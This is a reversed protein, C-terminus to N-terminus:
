SLLWRYSTRLAERGGHELVRGHAVIVRGFDWALIREFSERAATRDRVLLRELLTPGFGTAGLLRFAVRTALPSRPSLNYALDSVLLTRSSPHLFVVENIMPFGRVVCQEIQGTWDPPSEDGLEAHFAVDRRKAPLGPAALLEVGPYAAAVEGVYLHHFRNPAVAFRVRGLADLEKRLGPDLSVPSHLFLENGPLRIVTMRTGVEIGVFRLPREVTWLDPALENLM